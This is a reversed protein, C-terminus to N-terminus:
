VETQEQSAGGRKQTSLLEKENHIQVFDQVGKIILPVCSIGALKMENTPADFAYPQGILAM